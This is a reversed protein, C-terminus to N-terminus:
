NEEISFKWAEMTGKLLQRYLQYAKVEKCEMATHMNKLVQRDRELKENVVQNENRINRLKEGENELQRKTEIKRSAVQHLEEASKSFDIAMKSNSKRLEDNKNMLGHCKEILDASKRLPEQFAEVKMSTNNNLDEEKEKLNNTSKILEENEKKLKDLKHELAVSAQIQSEIETARSEETVTEQCSKKKKSKKKVPAEGQM